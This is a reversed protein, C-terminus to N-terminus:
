ITTELVLIQKKTIKKKFRNKIKSYATPVFIIADKIIMKGLKSNEARKTLDFASSLPAESPLLGRGAQQRRKRQRRPGIKRVCTRRVRVNQPLQNRPVRAYKSYFTRGNPLCVFKPMPLKRQLINDRPMDCNEEEVGSEEENEVVLYKKGVDEFLKSGISGAASLLFPRALTGLLPLFGGKQRKRSGLHWVGQKVHNRKM